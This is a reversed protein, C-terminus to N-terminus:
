FKVAFKQLLPLIVGSFKLWNHLKSARTQQFKREGNKALKVTQELRRLREAGSELHPQVQERLFGSALRRLEVVAIYHDRRDGEVYTTQVAGVEKLWRLGQSASGKSISL